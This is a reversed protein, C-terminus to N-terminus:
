ENVYETFLETLEDPTCDPIRSLARYIKRHREAGCIYVSSSNGLGATNIQLGNFPIVADASLSVSTFVICTFSASKYAKAADIFPKVDCSPASIVVAANEGREVSRKMMELLFSYDDKTGNIVTTEPNMVSVLLKKFDSGGNEFIGFVTGEFAMCLGKFIEAAANEFYAANERRVGTIALSEGMGFALINDIISVLAHNGRIEVKESTRDAAMEEFAARVSPRTTPEENVYRVNKLVRAKNYYLVGVNGIVRDGSKIGYEKVFSEPVYVDSEPLECFPDRRLVGDGEPFPRFYGSVMKIIRMRGSLGKALARREDPGFEYVSHKKSTIGIELERRRVAEDLQEKNLVTPSKVGISKAYEREAIINSGKGSVDTKTRAM